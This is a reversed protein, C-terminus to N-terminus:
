DSRIRYMISRQAPLPSRHLPSSWLSQWVAISQRDSMPFVAGVDARPSRRRNTKSLRELHLRLPAERGTEDAEGQLVTRNQRSDGFRRLFKRTAKERDHRDLFIELSMRMPVDYEDVIKIGILAM